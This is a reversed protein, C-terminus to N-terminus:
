NAPSIQQLFEEALEVAIPWAVTREDSPYTTVVKVGAESLIVDMSTRPTLPQSTERERSGPQNLRSCAAPRLAAQARGERRQSLLTELAERMLQSRPQGSLRAEENLQQELHDPLRLSVASM